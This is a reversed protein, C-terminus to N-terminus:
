RAARRAPTPTADAEPTTARAHPEEPPVVTVPAAPFLRQVGEVVLPEGLRAPQPGVPRIEVRAGQSVGLKVELRMAKGHRVVYVFRRGVLEVVADAPILLRQEPVGLPIDVEAVVGPRLLRDRNDVELEVEIRRTTADALPRVLHVRAKRTVLGKM